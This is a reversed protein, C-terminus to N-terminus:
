ATFDPAERVPSRERVLAEDFNDLRALPSDAFLAALSPSTAAPALRAYDTASLIVVAERGRVSVHQPVGMEALRVVESFRAKADELKWSAAGAQASAQTPAPDGRRQPMSM